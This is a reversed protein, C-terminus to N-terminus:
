DMKDRNGVGTGEPRDFSGGATLEIIEGYIVLRPVHYVRRTPPFIDTAEDRKETVAKRWDNICENWTRASASACSERVM